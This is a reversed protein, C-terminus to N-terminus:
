NWNTCPNTSPTASTVELEYLGERAAQPTTVEHAPFRGCIPRDRRGPTVCRSSLAEGPGLRVPVTANLVQGLTSSVNIDGLTLAEGPLRSRWCSPAQWRRSSRADRRDAVKRIATRLVPDQLRAPPPLRRM